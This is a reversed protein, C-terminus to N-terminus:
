PTGGEVRMRDDHLVRYADLVVTRDPTIGKLYEACVGSLTPLSPQLTLPDVARIGLIEDALIGFEMAPAHLIVVRNLDSIGQDPLDFFKRLDVISLIRSRVNIVGVVFDPTLPIPTLERLPYVERIYQLELAYREHALRFELVDLFIREEDEAEPERALERARDRLTRKLDDETGTM